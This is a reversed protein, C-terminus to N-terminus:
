ASSTHEHGTLGCFTIEPAGGVGLVIGSQYTAMERTVLTWEFKIPWSYTSVWYYTSLYLLIFALLSLVGDGTNASIGVQKVPTFPTGLSALSSHVFFAKNSEKSYWSCPNNVPPDVLMPANDAPKSSLRYTCLETKPQPTRDLKSTHFRRTNLCSMWIEPDPTQSTEAERAAHM